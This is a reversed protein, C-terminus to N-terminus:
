DRFAAILRLLDLFLNLINLYMGVAAMIYNDEEGNVLRSTDYLIFASFLLASVGAVAVQMAPFFISAISAILVTILGAFLFGGWRSFDRGSKIAYASLAFAIVATMGISETVISAGNAMSLYHTLTPGLSLGEIGTFAFISVLGWGSNRFKITAFLAAFGALICGIMGFGSWSISTGITSCIASWVLTLGLLMYTNRIVSTTGEVGRSLVTGDITIPENRM